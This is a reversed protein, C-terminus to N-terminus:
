LDYSTIINLVRDNTKSDSIPLTWYSNYNDDSQYLIIDNRELDKMIEHKKKNTEILFYNTESPYFNVNRDKLIKFIRSREERIFKKIKNNHEKDKYATIALKENFDDIQNDLIQSKNIINSIDIKAIVYAIELNQISYFNNFSRMVIVNKDLYKLPDLADKKESFECYRQDILIPINGPIKKLCGEFESKRLSHGSVTNPSSLYILKTKPTIYKTIYYLNPQLEKKSVERLVTYKPVIKQENCIIFVNNCSPYIVIIEGYNTVFLDVIKRLANLETRFLSINNKNVKLEKALVRKLDSKYISPDNLNNFKFKKSNILKQIKQFLM